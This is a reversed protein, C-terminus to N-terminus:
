QIKNKIKLMEQNNFTFWEPMRKNLKIMNLPAHIDFVGTILNYFIQLKLKVDKEEFVLHWPLQRADSSFQKMDINILDRVYRM